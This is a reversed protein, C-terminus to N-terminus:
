NVKGIHKASKNIDAIDSSTLKYGHSKGDANTMLTGNHIIFWHNGSDSWNKNNKTYVLYTGSNSVNSGTSLSKSIGMNSLIGNARAISGSHDKSTVCKMTNPDCVWTQGDATFVDELTIQKGSLGSCLANMAVFFCHQNSTNNASTVLYTESCQQVHHWTGEYRGGIEGGTKGPMYVTCNTYDLKCAECSNDVNTPTCRDPGACTCPPIYACQTWDIKCVECTDDFDSDSTCKDTCTCYKSASEGPTGPDSDGVGNPAYDTKKIGLAIFLEEGYTSYVKLFNQRTVDAGQAEVSNMANFSEIVKDRNGVISFIFFISVAGCTVAITLLLTKLIKGM